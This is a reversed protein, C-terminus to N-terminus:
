CPEICPSCAVAVVSVYGKYSNTVTYPYVVPLMADRHQSLAALVAWPHLATFFTFVAALTNLPFTSNNHSTPVSVRRKPPITELYSQNLSPLFPQRHPGPNSPSHSSPRTPAPYKPTPTLLKSEAFIALADVPRPRFCARHSAQRQTAELCPPLFIAFGAKAPASASGALSPRWTQDLRHEGWPLRAAATQPGLSEAARSRKSVSRSRRSV